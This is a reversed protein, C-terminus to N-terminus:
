KNSSDDTEYGAKVAKTVLEALSDVDIKRYVRQRRTEVTRISIGLKSAITKNPSGAIVLKMVKAEGESLSAFCNRISELSASQDRQEQDRQIAKRIADWLEQEDCPKELLTVAGYQMAKVTTPTRAYATMLIVPLNWDRRILEQLLEMGSMGLMRLDSVLCGPSDATYNNLFEEASPYAQFQLGMTHALASVSERSLKDDDVIYVVPHVTM